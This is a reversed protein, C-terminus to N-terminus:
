SGSRGTIRKTAVACLSSPSFSFSRLRELVTEGFCILAVGEVVMAEVVVFLEVVDATDAADLVVAEEDSGEAAGAEALKLKPVVVVDLGGLLAWVAVGVNEKPPLVELAGAGAGKEPNLKTGAGAAAAGAGPALILTDREGRGM